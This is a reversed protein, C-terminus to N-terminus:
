HTIHSWHGLGFPDEGKDCVRSSWWDMVATFAGGPQFYSSFAEERSLVKHHLTCYHINYWSSGQNWNLKTEVVSLAGISLNFCKALSYQFDIYTHFPYPGNQNKLLICFITSSDIEEM